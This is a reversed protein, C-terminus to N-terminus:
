VYPGVKSGKEGSAPGDLVRDECLTTTDGHSLQHGSLEAMQSRVARWSVLYTKGPYGPTVHSTKSASQLSPDLEPEHKGGTTKHTAQHWADRTRAHQDRGTM